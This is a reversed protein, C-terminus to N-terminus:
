KVEEICQQQGLKLRNGNFKLIIPPYSCLLKDGEEGLTREFRQAQLKGMM